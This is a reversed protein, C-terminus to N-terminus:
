SRRLKRLLRKKPLVKLRLNRQTPPPQKKLRRPNQRGSISAPSSPRMTRTWRSRVLILSYTTVFVVVAALVSVVKRWRKMRTRLQLFKEVMANIFEM